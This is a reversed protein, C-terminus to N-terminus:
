LHLQFLMVHIHGCMVVLQLYTNYFTLFVHIHFADLPFRLL